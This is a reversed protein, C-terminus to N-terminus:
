VVKRVEPEDRALDDGSTRSDNSSAAGRPRAEEFHTTIDTTVVVDKTGHIIQEKSSNPGGTTALEVWTHGEEQGFSGARSRFANSRVNSHHTSRDGGFQAYGGPTGGSYPTTSTKKTSTLGILQLAREM